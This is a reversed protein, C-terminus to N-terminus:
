IGGSFTDCSGADGSSFGRNFWDTRQEASGHTWTEPTIRGSTRQQIRDDGVAAAAGLGEQLDGSELLRREYATYAWVGALCDAQLEQRVSLDNASEPDQQAHGRVQEDIGFLHQVHHGVEHAIVYAQAFDGPAGFRRSLERFFELDLYVREDLPCYFPGVRADGVGCGTSTRGEFIVLETPEYSRGAATFQESWTAQIDDLVFGIFSVLEDENAADGPADPVVQTGGPPAGAQPLPEFGGGMDYGGGGGLVDGGAFWLVALLLLTPLGIRGVPLRLGRGSRM